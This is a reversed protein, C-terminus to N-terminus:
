TEGPAGTGDVKDMEKLADHIASAAEVPTMDSVKQKLMGAYEALHRNARGPDHLELVPGNRNWSLKKIRQAIHKPLSTVPKMEETSMPQKSYPDLAQNGESDLIPVRTFYDRMDARAWNAERDLITERSENANSCLVLLHAEIAAQVSDFKLLRHAEQGPHAFGATEAAKTGNGGNEAFAIAFRRRKPSALLENLKIDADTKDKQRNV